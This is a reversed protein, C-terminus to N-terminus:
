KKDIEVKLVKTQQNRFPQRQISWESDSLGRDTKTVRDHGLEELAEDDNGLLHLADLAGDINLNGLKEAVFINM